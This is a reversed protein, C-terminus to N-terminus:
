RKSRHSKKIARVLKRAVEDPKLPRTVVDDIGLRMKQGVAELNGSEVDALVPIGRNTWKSLEELSCDLALVVDYNGDKYSPKLEIGHVALAMKLDGSFLDERGCMLVRGKSKASGSVAMGLITEQGTNKIDSENDPTPVMRGQREQWDSENKEERSDLSKQGLMRKLREFIDDSTPRDAAHKAMMRELLEGVGNPLDPRKVLVNPIDSYRHLALLKGVAKDYFPPFGTACEYMMIALAYVDSASSPDNGSAVEPGLYIPTGGIIGGETLRGQDEEVDPKDIFAMGFDLLRARLPTEKENIMVNTPKIDRHVIGLRHATSLVDALQTFIELLEAKSIEDKFLLYERLSCGEVFDTVLYLMSDHRGFDLTKPAGPHHLKAGVKAERIFRAEADELKLMRPLMVKVAVDKKFTSDSALFVMGMGGRGIEKKLSYRNAILDGVALKM